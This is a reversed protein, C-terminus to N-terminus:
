QDWCHDFASGFINVIRTSSRLMNPFPSVTPSLVRSACSKHAGRDREREREQAPEPFRHYPHRLAVYVSNRPMWKMWTVGRRIMPMQWALESRSMCADMGGDEPREVCSVTRTCSKRHWLRIFFLLFFASAALDCPFLSLIEELWKFGFKNTVWFIFWINLDFM